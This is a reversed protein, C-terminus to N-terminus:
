VSVKKTESFFKLLNPPLSAFLDTLEWECMNGDSQDSPPMIIHLENTLSCIQKLVRFPLSEIVVIVATNEEPSDSIKRLLQLLRILVDIRCCLIDDARVPLGFHYCGDQGLQVYDLLDSPEMKISELKLLLESIGSSLTDRGDKFGAKKRFPNAMSIGPMLDLRIIRLGSTLLSKTCGAAYKERDSRDAFSLLIRMHGKYRGFDQLVHPKFMNIGSSSDLVQLPIQKSTISRAAEQVKQSLESGTMKRRTESGHTQLPIFCPEAAAGTHKFLMERDTRIEDYLIVDETLVLSPDNKLDDPSYLSIRTRPILHLLRQSMSRAFVPDPDIIAIHGEMEFQAGKWKTFDNYSVFDPVSGNNKSLVHCYLVSKSLKSFHM